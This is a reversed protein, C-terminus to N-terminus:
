ARSCCDSLMPVISLSLGALSPLLVLSQTLLQDVALSYLLDCLAHRKNGGHPKKEQNRIDEYVREHQSNKGGSPGLIEEQIKVFSYEKRTSSQTDSLYMCVYKLLHLLFSLDEKYFFELYYIFVHGWGTSPVWSGKKLHSSSKTVGNWCISYPFPFINAECHLFRPSLGKVLQDFNFDGMILWTSMMYGRLNLGQLSSVSEGRYYNEGLDM